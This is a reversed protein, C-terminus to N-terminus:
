SNHHSIMPITTPNEIEKNDGVRDEDRIKIEALNSTQSIKHLVIPHKRLALHRNKLQQQFQSKRKTTVGLTSLSINGPTKKILPNPDEAGLAKLTEEDKIQDKSDIRMHSKSLM